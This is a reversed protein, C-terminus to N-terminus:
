VTFNAFTFAQDRFGNLVSEDYLDQHSGSVSQAAWISSVAGLPSVVLELEPVRLISLEQRGQTYAPLVHSLVFRRSTCLCDPVVM